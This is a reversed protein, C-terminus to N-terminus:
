KTNSFEKRVNEIDFLGDEHLTINTGLIKLIKFADNSETLWYCNKVMEAGLTKRANCRVEYALVENHKRYKDYAYGVAFMLFASLFLILSIIGIIILVLESM